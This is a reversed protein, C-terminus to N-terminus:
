DGDFAGMLWLAMSFVIPWGAAYFVVPEVNTFFWDITTLLILMLLLIAPISLSAIVAAGVCLGLRRAWTDKPKKPKIFNLSM